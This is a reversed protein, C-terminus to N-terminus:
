SEVRAADSDVQEASMGIQELLTRDRESYDNNM